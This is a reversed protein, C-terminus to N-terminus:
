QEGFPYVPTQNWENVHISLFYSGPISERNLSKYYVSETHVDATILSTYLASSGIDSGQERQYHASPLQKLFERSDSFGSDGTYSCTSCSYDDTSSVDNTAREVM